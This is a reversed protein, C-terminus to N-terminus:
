FIEINEKFNNSLKEIMKEPTFTQAEIKLHEPFDLLQDRANKM